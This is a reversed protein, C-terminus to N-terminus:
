ETPASPIPESDKGSTNLKSSLKSSTNEDMVINAKIVLQGGEKTVDYFDFRSKKLGEGIERMRFAEFASSLSKSKETGEPIDFLLPRARGELTTSEHEKWIASVEEETLPSGAGYIRELDKVIQFAGATKGLGKLSSIIVNTKGGLINMYAEAAAKRDPAALVAIGGLIASLILGLLNFIIDKLEGIAREVAGVNEKLSNRLKEADSKMSESLDGSKSLAKLMEKRSRPEDEATTFLEELITTTEESLGLMKEAAFLQKRVDEGTRATRLGPAVTELLQMFMEPQLKGEIGAFRAQRRFAFIREMAGAGEGAIRGGLLYQFPIDVKGFIGMIEETAKRAQTMGGGLRQSAEGTIDLTEGVRGLDKGLSGLRSQLDMVNQLWLNTPGINDEFKSALNDMNGVTRQVNVNYQTMMNTLQNVTSGYQTGMVLDLNTTTMILNDMESTVGGINGQFQDLVGGVGGMVKVMQEETMVFQWKERFADFQSGLSSVDATVKGVGEGVAFTMRRWENVIQSREARFREVGAFAAGLLIGWIGFKMMARGGPILNSIESQTIAGVQQVTSRAGEATIKGVRKILSETGSSLRKLEAEMENVKKKVHEPLESWRQKLVDINDKMKKMDEETFTKFKIGLNEMADQMEQNVEVGQQFAIRLDSLKNKLREVREGADEIREGLENTADVTSDVSGTTSKMVRGLHDLIEIQEQLEKNTPPM